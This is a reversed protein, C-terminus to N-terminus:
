PFGFFVLVGRCAPNQCLYARLLYIKIRREPAYWFMPHFVPPRMSNWQSTLNNVDQFFELWNCSIGAKDKGRYRRFAFGHRLIRISHSEASHTICILLHGGVTEPCYGRCAQVLLSPVAVKYFQAKGMHFAVADSGSIIASLSQYLARSIICAHASQSSPNRAPLVAYDMGNMIPIQTKCFVSFRIGRNKGITGTM